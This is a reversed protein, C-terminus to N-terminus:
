LVLVPSIKIYKSHTANCQLVMVTSFCLLFFVVADSPSDYSVVLVGEFSRATVAVKHAGPASRCGLSGGPHVWLSRESGKLLCATSKQTRIVGQLKAALTM